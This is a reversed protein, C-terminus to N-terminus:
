SYIPWFEESLSVTSTASPACFLGHSAQRLNTCAMPASPIGTETYKHLRPRPVDPPLGLVQAEGKEGRCVTFWTKRRMAPLKKMSCAGDSARAADM